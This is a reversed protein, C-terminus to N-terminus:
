FLLKHKFDSVRFRENTHTFVDSRKKNNFSHAMRVDVILLTSSVVIIISFYILIFLIFVGCRHIICFFGYVGRSSVVVVTVVRIM